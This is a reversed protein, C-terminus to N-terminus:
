MGECQTTSMYSGYKDYKRFNFVRKLQRGPSLFYYFNHYPNIKNGTLAEITSTMFTRLYKWIRSKTIVNQSCLSKKTHILKGYTLCEPLLHCDVKCQM